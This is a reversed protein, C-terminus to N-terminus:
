NNENLRVQDGPKVSRECTTIVYDYAYFGGSVATRTDDKALETIDARTAIYRNGLPTSKAELILVFKGNTDEHIASSPVILDYEATKSGMSVNLTIGSTLSDGKLDIVVDTKRAPDSASPKKSSVVAVVDSYWWANVLDVNDGTRVLNSKENPITVTMTFGQGEPQITMLTDGAKAEKGSQIDISLIKGAIPAKLDGGKASELLKDLAKQADSVDQALYSLEVSADLDTIYNDLNLKVADYFKKLQDMQSNLDLLHNQANSIQGNLSATDNAANKMKDNLAKNADNKAIEANNMATEARDIQAQQEATRPAPYLTVLDNYADEADNFIKEAAAYKASEDAYSGSSELQLKLKEINRTEEDIEKQKNDMAAQAMKVNDSAATLNAAYNGTNIVGSTNNKAADEVIKRLKDNYDRQAQKLADEAAKIDSSEEASLKMLVDGQQVEDGVKVAISVVEMNQKISVEYPDKSEVVGSERIKTTVTGSEVYKCVVQPLSHNMITNSFFTLLLLIILFVIIANKIWNKRKEFDM